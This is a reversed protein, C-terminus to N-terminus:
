FLSPPNELDEGIENNFSLEDEHFLKTNNNDSNSFNISSRSEFLFINNNKINFELGNEYLLDNRSIDNYYNTHDNADHIDQYKFLREQEQIYFNTRILFKEYETVVLDIPEAHLSLAMDYSQMADDFHLFCEEFNAKEIWYRAPFNETLIGIKKSYSPEYFRDLTYPSAQISYPPEYFRDIYPSAQISYPPEYFRNIYPSPQTAPYPPECFRDLMYPTQIKCTSCTTVNKTDPAKRKMNILKMEKPAYESYNIFESFEEMTNIYDSAKPTPDDNDDDEVITAKEHLNITPNSAPPRKPTSPKLKPLINTPPANDYKSKSAITTSGQPRKKPVPIKSYTLPRAQNPLKYENEVNKKRKNEELLYRRKAQEQEYSLKKNNNHLHNKNNINNNNKLQPTTIILNNRLPTTITSNNRLPTTITLNNRFKNKNEKNM